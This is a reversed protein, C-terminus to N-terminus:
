CFKEPSFISEAYAIEFDDTNYLICKTFTSASISMTLTMASRAVSTCTYMHPCLFQCEPSTVSDHPPQPSFEPCTSPSSTPITNQYAHDRCAMATGRIGIPIGIVNCNNQYVYVLMFMEQQIELSGTSSLENGTEVEQENCFTVTPREQAQLM